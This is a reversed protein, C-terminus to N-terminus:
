GGARQSARWAGAGEGQNQRNPPSSPLVEVSVRKSVRHSVRKSVRQPVGPTQQSVLPAQVSVEDIVVGRKQKERHFTAWPIGWQWAIEQDALGQAKLDDYQVWDIM